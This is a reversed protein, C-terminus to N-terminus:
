LTAMLQQPVSESFAVGCDRSWKQSSFKFLVATQLEETKPPSAVCNIMTTRPAVNTRTKKKNM